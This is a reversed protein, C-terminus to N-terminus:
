AQRKIYTEASGSRYTDNTICHIGGDWFFRHRFPVVIPEVNHQKFFEFMESNYNNVIVQQENIQLMNVDFVTEEVYGMWNTIWSDVFDEFERNHIKEPVWWKGHNSHKLQRWEPVANWSQNEIYKIQWGPLTDTYNSHHYTSVAVGPKILAFVADNHGGIDVPIIKRDPFTQQFFDALWPDERRDVIIHNGVVTAMPADFHRASHILQNPQLAWQDQFWSAEPNTVLLQNGVVLFSDRPQMPPRPILTFSKANSYNLQGSQSDVFDMISLNPDISPRQVTVGLQLLVTILNTYDIETEVAIQQLSDRVKSSKIDKYFEPSYSRGVWTHKLPHWPANYQISTSCTTM